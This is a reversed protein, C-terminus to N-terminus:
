LKYLLYFTNNLAKIHDIIMLVQSALYDIRSLSVKELSYSRSIFGIISHPIDSHLGALFCTNERILSLNNSGLPDLLIIRNCGNYFEMILGYIDGHLDRINEGNRGRLIMHLQYNKSLQNFYIVGISKMSLLKFALYDIRNIIDLRNFLPNYEIFLIKPANYQNHNRNERM